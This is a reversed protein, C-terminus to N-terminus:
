GHEDGESNSDALLVTMVRNVVAEGLDCHSAPPQDDVAPCPPLKLKLRAGLARPQHHCWANILLLGDQEIRAMLADVDIDEDGNDGAPSLDIAGLATRYDDRGLREILERLPEALIIKRLSQAHWIAGALRLARTLVEGELRAFRGAATNLDDATLPSLSFRESLLMSLRHRLRPSQLRRDRMCSSLGEPLLARLREAHCYSAPLREFRFRERYPGSAQSPAHQSAATM